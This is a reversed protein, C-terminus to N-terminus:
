KTNKKILDSIVTLKNLILQGKEKEVEKIFQYMQERLYVYSENLFHM